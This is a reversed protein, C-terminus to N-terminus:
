SDNQQECNNSVFFTELHLIQVNWKMGLNLGQHIVHGFDNEGISTRLPVIIQTCLESGKGEGGGRYSISLRDCRMGHSHEGRCQCKNRCPCSSLLMKAPRDGCGHWPRELSCKRISAYVSCGRDNTSLVTIWAINGSWNWSVHLCAPLCAMSSSM